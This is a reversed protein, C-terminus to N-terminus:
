IKFGGFHLPFTFYSIFFHWSFFVFMGDQKSDDGKDDDEENGKNESTNDEEDGETPGDSQHQCANIIVPWPPM